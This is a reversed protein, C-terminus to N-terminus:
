KENYICKMTDCYAGNYQQNNGQCSKPNHICYECENINETANEKLEGSKHFILLQNDKLKYYM